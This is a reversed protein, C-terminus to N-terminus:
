PLDWTVGPYLSPIRFARYALLGKINMQWVLQPNSGQTVEQVYSTGLQNLDLAIDFELDDNALIEANGCCASFPAKYESVVAEIMRANENLRLVPVSSYCAPVNPTFPGEVTDCVEGNPGLPRRNGNNFFMMSFIGASQERVFTPYHQAYNWEAPTFGSPLPFDGEPGLKWLVSGNGKGNEYNIKIIWNQNRMSLILNGDDPAYTLGNAHTWDVTGYPAHSLDLHDFVSWTWVAAGKKPDWDIVMDGLVQTNAAPALNALVIFHGNALQLVDHHFSTLQDSIGRAVLSASVDQVTIRQVINGALDIERIENANTASPSVEGLSNTVPAAVLLMHGNPLLKMSYPWEGPEIAYYWIVNGHLDTAVATLQTGGSTPDLSLLEIGPSPTASGFQTTTINPINAAAIDGTNFVHDADKSDSGDPLEIQARLHYPTAARMGGVLVQVKGGGPPAPQLWTQQGYNTDPGFQVRVSAGQPVPCTYAAILPNGTQSVSCSDTTGKFFLSVPAPFSTVNNVANVATVSITQPSSANPATYFGALNITGTTSSGGAVGNVMWSVNAVAAGTGDTASFQVTQGPLLVAADPTLVVPNVFTSQLKTASGCGSALTALVAISALRVFSSVM